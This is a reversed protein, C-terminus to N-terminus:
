KQRGDNSVGMLWADLSARRFRHVGLGPRARADPRLTGKAIHEQLTRRSVRTYECAETTTFWEQQALPTAAPASQKAAEGM